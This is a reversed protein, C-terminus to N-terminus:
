IDPASVIASIRLYKSWSQVETLLKVISLQMDANQHSAAYCLLHQVPITLWGQNGLIKIEM